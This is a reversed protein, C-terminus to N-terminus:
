MENFLAFERLDNRISDLVVSHVIGVYRGIVGVVRWSPRRRRCHSGGSVSVCPVFPIYWFTHVRHVRVQREEFPVINIIKEQLSHGEM